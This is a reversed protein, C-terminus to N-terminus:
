FQDDPVVVPDDVCILECQSPDQGDGGGDCVEELHQGPPCPPVDPVCVSICTQPPAPPYQTPDGCSEGAISSVEEICIQDWAVTCCFPDVDCIPGIAPDCEPGLAGGDVCKDHSCPGPDDCQIEEHYGPECVNDPVCTPYCEGGMGGDTGDQIVPDDCVWEEHFGPGCPNDPVCTPYCQDPPQTPDNPDEPPQSPDAPDTPMGGDCVWEVHFGDGCVNIPVCELWCDNPDPPPPCDMGDQCVVDEGLPIPEGCTWQPETGDPCVADPVCEEKCPANCTDDCVTEPHFGPDCVIPDPGPDGGTGGGTEQPDCGGGGFALLLPIVIGTLSRLQISRM